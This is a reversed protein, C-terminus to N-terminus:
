KIAEFEEKSDNWYYTETENVPVLKGGQNLETGTKEIVINYFDSNPVPKTTITSSWKYTKNQPLDAGQDDDSVQVQLVQKYKDNIFYYMTLYDGFYGQGGDSIIFEFAKKNNGVELISPKPAQGYSGLVGVYKDTYTMKWENNDKEFIAGGIYPGCAHCADTITAALFYAQTKGAENKTEYYGLPVSVLYGPPINVWDSLSGYGGGQLFNRLDQHSNLDADTPKWLLHLDSKNQPNNYKGAISAYDVFQSSDFLGKMFNKELDSQNEITGIKNVETQVQTNKNSSFSRYIIFDVFVLVLFIATLGILLILFRKKNKM